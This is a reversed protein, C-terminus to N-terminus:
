EVQLEIQCYRLLVSEPFAEVFHAPLPSDEYRWGPYTGLLDIRNSPETGNRMNAIVFSQLPYECDIKHLHDSVKPHVQTVFLGEEFYSSTHLIVYLNHGDTSHFRACNPMPQEYGVFRNEKADASGETTELLTRRLVVNGDRIQCYNLRVVIPTGSFFRDRILTQWINRDIYLIHVTNDDGIWMDMNRIHGCTEDNSAITLVPSFSRSLVNDTYSFFLQRFTYDWARQTTRFKFERWSLNPEYIDSVCLVAAFSDRSAVQPYAGRTPFPIHGSSVTSGQANLLTWAYGKYGNINFVLILDNKLDTGIGRYSHETFPYKKDWNPFFVGAKVKQSPLVVQLRPNCYHTIKGNSLTSRIGIPPNEHILIRGDRLAAIPCPERESFQEGAILVSWPGEQNRYFLQWKTNCLSSSKLDATQAAVFVVDRVRVISSSGYAWLPGPMESTGDFETIIEEASLTVKM